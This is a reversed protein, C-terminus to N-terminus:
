IGGANGGNILDYGLKYYKITSIGGTTIITNTSDEAVINYADLQTEEDTTSTFVGTSWNFTGSSPATVSMIPHSNFKITIEGASNTTTEIDIPTSVIADTITQSTTQTHTALASIIKKSSWTSTTTVSADNIISTPVTINTGNAMTFILNAGDSTINSIGTAAVKKLLAYTVVDFM